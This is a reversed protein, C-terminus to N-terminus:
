MSRLGADCTSLLCIAATSSYILKYCKPTALCNLVCGMLKPTNIIERTPSFHDDTQNENTMVFIDDAVLAQGCTVVGILGTSSM